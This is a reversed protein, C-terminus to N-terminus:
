SCCGGSNKEKSGHTGCCCGHLSATLLELIEDHSPVRGKCVVKEDVVLAPTTMINYAMIQQLDEVKEVVANLGEKSIVAKVADFLQNCTSCGSGLVKVKKM